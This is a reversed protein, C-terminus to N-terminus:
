EFVGKVIKQAETFLSAWERLNHSPVIVNVGRIGEVAKTEELLTEFSEKDTTIGLKRLFLKTNEDLPYLFSAVVPFDLNNFRDLIDEIRAISKKSAIVQTFFGEAGAIIKRSVRKVETKPEYYPNLTGFVRPREFSSFREKTPLVGSFILRALRILNASDLDFVPRSPITPTPWDGTALLVAEFGFLHATKLESTIALLNRDKATIHPMVEIPWLSKLYVALAISDFHPFGLPNDPITVLDADISDVVSLVDTFSSLGAVPFEVSLANGREIGRWFVSDKPLADDEVLEELEMLLPHEDFYEDLVKTGCFWPCESHNVECRRSVAGGCPGNNMSKPCLKIIM